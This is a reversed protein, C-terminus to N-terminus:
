CGGLQKVYGVFYEGLVIKGHQDISLNLGSLEKKRGSLRMTQM